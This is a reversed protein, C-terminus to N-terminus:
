VYIIYSIHNKLILDFAEVSTSVDEIIRNTDAFTILFFM